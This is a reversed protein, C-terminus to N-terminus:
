FNQYHPLLSYSTFREQALQAFDARKLTRDSKPFLEAFVKNSHTIAIRHSVIMNLSHSIQESLPVTAKQFFSRLFKTVTPM